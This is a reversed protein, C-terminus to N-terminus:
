SSLVGPVAEFSDPLFIEIRTKDQHCPGIHSTTSSWFEILSSFDTM